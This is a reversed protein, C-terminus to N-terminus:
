ALDRRCCTHTHACKLVYMIDCIRGGVCTRTLGRIYFWVSGELLVCIRGAVCTCTLGRIYFWVFWEQLVCFNKRCCVSIRGAVCTRTLGRIYCWVFGEQLVRTHASSYMYLMFYIRGAVCTRTRTLVDTGYRNTKWVFGELLVHTHASSYMYVDCSDKWYM